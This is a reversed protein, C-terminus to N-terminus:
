AASSRKDGNKKGNGNAPFRHIFRARDWIEFGEVKEGRRAAFLKTAQEVAQADSTTNLVEVGVIHGGRM